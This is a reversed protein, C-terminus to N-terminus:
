AVIQQRIRAREPTMARLFKLIEINAAVELASFDDLTTLSVDAGREVLSKVMATKGASSAYILATAGNDNQNDIDIGSELLGQIVAESESVCAMWLANNGDQNKLNGSAGAALLETCLAVAGERAARMLATDNNAGRKDVNGPDFGRENMWDLLAESLETAPRTVTQFWAEFGGDLSYCNKFGFDSFLQAMDQSANGHYCYILIPIHKATHKLLAPLNGDSLHLAKPHHDELYFRIDRMDLVLMNADKIMQEAQTASICQYTFM